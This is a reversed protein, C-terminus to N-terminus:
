ITEDSDGSKKVVGHKRGSEPDVIEEIDTHHQMIEQHIEGNKKKISPKRNVMAISQRHQIQNTEKKSKKYFYIGLLTGAAILLVAIIGSIAIWVGTQDIGEIYIPQNQNIDEIPTVFPDSAVVCSPDVVVQGLSYIKGAESSGFFGVLQDGSTFTMLKDTYATPHNGMFITKETNSSISLADIFEAGYRVIISKIYEGQSPDITLTKCIGTVDGIKNMALSTLLEDSATSYKGVFAEMGRLNGDVDGCIQIGQMRYVYDSNEHGILYDWDSYVIGSEPYGYAEFNKSICTAQQAQALSAFLVASASFIKNM